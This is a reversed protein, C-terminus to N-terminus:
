NIQVYTIVAGLVFTVMCGITTLLILLRKDSM